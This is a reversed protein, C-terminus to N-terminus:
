EEDEKDDVITVADAGFLSRVLDGPREKEPEAEEEGRIELRLKRGAVQRLVEEAEKLNNPMEAREKHFAYKSSFRVRFANGEVETGEGEKLYAHLSKNRAEMAEMFAAWLAGAGPIPAAAPAEQNAPPEKKGAPKGAQEQPVPTPSAATGPKERPPPAEELGRLLEVELLIDPHSSNKQLKEVDGLRWLWALIEEKKLGAGAKVLAQIDQPTDLIFAEPRKLSRTVLLNKLAETLDGLLQGVSKGQEKLVEYLALVKDGDRKSIAELLGLLQARDPIGAIQGVMEATIEGEFSTLCQDLLSIGDRLGGGALKAILTLAEETVKGGNELAIKELREKLQEMPIKHFDFKQCRSLITLPIKHSETTALIFVVHEPPEELTKLLANFAETTLMHVEDIIYVKVKGEVPLFRIKERLDRIEDIGRNSAADIELIDMFSGENIKLCSACKNCPEGGSPELCNLAKALIKASSTKGTGRVGAFLYAHSVKKQELAHLLTRVVHEQGVLDAFRGPRYTRYLAQYSM